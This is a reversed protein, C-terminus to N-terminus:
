ADETVALFADSLRGGELTFGLVPVGADLLRRLVEAAATEPETDVPILVAVQGGHDNGVASAQLGSGALLEVARERQEARVSVLGRRPAAARRAVEAVTGEAVVRGHNLILVQDCVQEVEVLLHTTLIVTVGYEKAIRAVLDLVQRQGAPDLGLTPEDLFVVQPDNVLARAIGLRQRMGRSYASILSGGRDALGVEALLRHATERAEVLPRGFLQAHFTLWEQGTQGLPYGASEPLVGIRRRIEVPDTHPIGSVAFTGADARLITSLIRIVTTKGAGNPGLFGLVVGAEVALEVSNVAVVGGYSKRLGTAELALTGAM